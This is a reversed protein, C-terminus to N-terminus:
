MVNHIFEALTQFCLTYQIILKNHFSMVLEWELAERESSVLWEVESTNMVWLTKFSSALAHNVGAQSDAYARLGELLIPLM